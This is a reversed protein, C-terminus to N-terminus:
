RNCLTNARIQIFMALFTLVIGGLSKLLDNSISLNHTLLSVEFIVTVALTGMFGAEIWTGKYSKKYYYKRCLVNNGMEKFM